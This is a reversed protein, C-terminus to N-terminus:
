AHGAAASVSLVRVDPLWDARLKTLAAHVLDKATRNETCVACVALGIATHVPEVDYPLLVVIAAPAEDRWLMGDDCFLCPLPQDRSRQEIQRLALDAAALVLKSTRDGAVADAVLAPASAQTVASLTLCGAGAALLQQIDHEIKTAEIQISNM